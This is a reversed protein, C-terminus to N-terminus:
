RRRHRLAPLCRRVERLRDLDITSCIVGPGDGAEAVVTGWPDVISSHGYTTRSGPHAGWQNATVVWCQNEIARARVLVMFHDKGTTHTFAASVVLVEAGGDVLARYHEPFRLDYCISMGYRVGELDVSVVADGPTTSASEHHTAGDPLEVDFLHRKRYRAAVQGAASVVLLTNFPRKPDPAVEPHGGAILAVGHRRALAALASQVPANADGVREALRVREASAGFFAFNEPLVVVRAGLDTARAVERAVAALNAELADGSCLQVAAVLHPVTM